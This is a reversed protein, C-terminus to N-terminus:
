WRLSVSTKKKKKIEKQLKEYTNIIYYSYIILAGPYNLQSLSLSKTEASIMIKPNHARRRRGEGRSKWGRELSPTHAHM